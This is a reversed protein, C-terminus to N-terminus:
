YTSYEVHDKKEKRKKMWIRWLSCRYTCITFRKSCGPSLRRILWVDPLPRRVMEKGKSVSEISMGGLMDSWTPDISGKIRIRYQAPTEINFKELKPSQPM